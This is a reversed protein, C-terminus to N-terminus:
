IIRATAPSSVPLLQVTTGARQLLQLQRTLPFAEYPQKTKQMYRMKQKHQDGAQGQAWFLGTQDQGDSPEKRDV